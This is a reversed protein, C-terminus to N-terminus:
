ARSRAHRQALSRVESAVVAFGRGQEGARAAEVAANLALINTQFAIGDIVAIIDAIKKSSSQIEDMTAVVQSVVSGGRQAVDAASAALQNATRASEATSGVTGTLQELSSAAQQLNSATQETRGSLDQNGTAVETSALRISQSSAHVDGVVRQLSAQMRQLAGVLTAAEDQGQVSVPRSLDGGAIREAVGVAYAIPATISHSNALTLPVVVLLIVVLAGGFGLVGWGLLTQLDTRMQAAEASVIAAIQEVREEAVTVEDKARGLMRDATRANDYQGDLVNRLVPESREVYAALRETAERALTNSGGGEGQAFPALAQKTAQLAALWAERHKAVRAGDEYDIVMQKEHARTAALQQRVQGVAELEQVARAMFEDSLSQIKLGGAVGMLGIVAFMSLVMVVAGIMRVRITFRRLPAVLFDM